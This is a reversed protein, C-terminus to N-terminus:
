PIAKGANEWLTKVKPGIASIAAITGIVVLACVLGWELTETGHEDTLLRRMLHRM